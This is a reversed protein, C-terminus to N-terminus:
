DQRLFKSPINKEIIANNAVLAEWEKERQEEEDERKFHAIDEPHTLDEDKTDDNHYKEWHHIEYEYEEDGHHGPGFGLDPLTRGRAVGALFEQKSIDGSKDSDYFDLIHQVASLKHEEDISASSVDLLGYM